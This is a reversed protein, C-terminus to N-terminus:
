LVKRAKLIQGEWLLQYRWFFQSRENPKQIAVDLDIRDRDVLFARVTVTQAVGDTVLWDLAERAYQEAKTRTEQRSVSRNLLWLKSGIRDGPFDSLLDGYWGGRDTEGLPLEQETVRADTFLSIMVANELGEDSELTGLRYSIDFRLNDFNLKVDSM